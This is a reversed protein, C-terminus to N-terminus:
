GEFDESLIEAARKQASEPLRKILDENAESLERLEDLSTCLKRDDLLKSLFGDADAIPEDGIIPDDVAPVDPHMIRMKIAEAFAIANAEHGEPMTVLISRWREVTDDVADTTECKRIDAEYREYDGSKRGAHASRRLPGADSLVGGDIIEEAAYLGGLVDAAGDRAAFGRARMQLMRDPYQQWPGQKGWLGAKKADAVSFSREVESGDPRTVQCVAIREEKTNTIFENVKFGAAWLLAPIADGWITPRGNVVAIKNIAFMPPLGIELGTMIAVTLKEPTEMGRPALGSKAVAQALRFVEEVNTPVIGTVKGGTRLQVVANSM